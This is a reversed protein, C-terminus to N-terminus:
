TLFRNLTSCKITSIILNFILSASDLELFM